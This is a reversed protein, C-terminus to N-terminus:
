SVNFHHKSMSGTAQSSAKPNNCVIDSALELEQLGALLTDLPHAPYDAAVREFV